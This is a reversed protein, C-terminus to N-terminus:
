VFLVVLATACFINSFRGPLHTSRHHISLGRGVSVATIILISLDNQPHGHTEINSNSWYTHPKGLLYDSPANESEGM